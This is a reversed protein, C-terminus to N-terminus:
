NLLYNDNLYLIKVNIFLTILLVVIAFVCVFSHFSFSPDLSVSFAFYWWWSIVFFLYIGINCNMYIVCLKTVRIICNNNRSGITVINVGPYVYVLIRCSFFGM